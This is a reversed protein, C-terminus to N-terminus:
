ITITCIMLIYELEVCVVCVWAIWRASWWVYDYRVWGMGPFISTCVNNYYVRKKLRAWSSKRLINGHFCLWWCTFHICRCQLVWWSFRRVSHTFSENTLPIKWSPCYMCVSEEANRWATSCCEISCSLM